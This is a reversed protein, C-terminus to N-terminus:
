SSANLKQRNSMSSGPSRDIVSSMASRDVRDDISKRITKLRKERIEPLYNFSKSVAEDPHTGRTEYFKHKADKMLQSNRLKIEYEKVHSVSPRHMDKVFIAYAERKEKRKVKETKNL